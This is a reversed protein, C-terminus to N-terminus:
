GFGRSITLGAWTFARSGEGAKLEKSQRRVVYSLRLRNDLFVDLGLWAEGLVHEIESSGYAVDSHRFQGQLFSDYLRGRLKVGATVAFTRRRRSPLAPEAIVPQGAYDGEDAFSEWWREPRNGWRFSVGANLETLFGASAMTDFRLSYRETGLRGAALLRYRSLAYRFTPEGGDSIQHGYGMPLTAGVAAHVSRHVQEALHLGLMGLTLTSQYAVDRRSDHALKSRAAYFLSAYPRDNTLPEEAALDQPTFLLLGLELARARTPAPLRFRGCRRSERACRAERGRATPGSTTFTVSVGATYDRDKHTLAFLDNDSHLTWERRPSAARTSGEAGAADAGRSHMVLSALLGLSAFLRLYRRTSSAKM